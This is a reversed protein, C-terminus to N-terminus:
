STILSNVPQTQTVRGLDGERVPSHLGLKRQGRKKRVRSSVMLAVSQVADRPGVQLAVSCAFIALVRENGSDVDDPADRGSGGLRGERLGDTRARM